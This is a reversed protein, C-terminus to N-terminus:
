SPWRTRAREIATVCKSRAGRGKLPLSSRLAFRQRLPPPGARLADLIALLVGESNALVDNNWFRIVCLWAAGVLAHVRLVSSKPWWPRSQLCATAWQAARRRVRIPLIAVSARAEAKRGNGDRDRSPRRGSLPCPAEPGPRGLHTSLRRDSLCGSHRRRALNPCEGTAYSRCGPSKIKWLPAGSGHQVRDM